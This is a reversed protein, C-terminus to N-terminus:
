DAEISLLKLIPDSMKFSAELSTDASEQGQGALVEVRQRDGREFHCNRGLVIGQANVELQLRQVERGGKRDLYPRSQNWGFVVVEASKRLYFYDVEAQLGYRVVRILDARQVEKGKLDRPMQSPGREVVLRFRLYATGNPLTQLYPDEALNGRLIVINNETM